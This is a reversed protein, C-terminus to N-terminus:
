DLHGMERRAIQTERNKAEHPPTAIQDQREIRRLIQAKPTISFSRAIHCSMRTAIHEVHFMISRQRSREM